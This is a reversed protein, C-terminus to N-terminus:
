VLGGNLDISSGNFYATSIIFNVTSLIEEPTGLRKAPISQILNELYDGPVQEIMGINFYGLNINNITVNKNGNEVALAKSMGWLAAKSSAYASTGPIGKQAVVSSFNIIRGYNDERMKPLSLRIMNFTGLLNVEFVQKWNDFNAKHGFSNYSIGATNLLIIDKLSDKHQDFFAIVEEEKTINIKYYGDSNGEPLTTNYFGIVEKGESKFKEFLFKGIGRSASTIIIM